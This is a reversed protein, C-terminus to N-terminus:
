TGLEGRCPSVRDLRSKLREAKTRRGDADVDGAEARRVGVESGHGGGEAKREQEAHEALSGEGSGKV